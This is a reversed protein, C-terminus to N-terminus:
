ELVSKMEEYEEKTIEGKAFRKKLILLPDDDSSLNKKENIREYIIKLLEEADDKPIAEIYGDFISGPVNIDIASSFIGKELKIDVIQEYNYIEINQRLGLASPNRIIIKKTTAFITDPTILSSGPKLINKTQRIVMLVKEDEDIRDAIQIIEDIKKEDFIDPFNREPTMDSM